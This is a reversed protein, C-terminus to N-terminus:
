RGISTAAISTAKIVAFCTVGQSLDLDQVARATVRALLQDGAADLSIAAGPGDGTRISKVTVPLINVSSLGTPRTRSLIVDQALVHLRVLTGVPAAVGPLELTGANTKLTSIGDDGHEMVTAQLVAGAQRVGVLPVITPDALVDFISGSAAIKGKSLIVLQDALRAIEDLAHSVYLIPLGAAGSKLRELYPLINDKRQGDLAALPEDMLLMKPRSLLARGLAVRQKEGGSLDTPRRKMLDTLGLLDAVEDLSPGTSGAPAHRLGFRLNQTVDMHPFLRADQFVYGMRRKHAPLNIRQAADFLPTDNLAIHGSDPASLGAVVNILTTKGAGSRGFVATVGNPATFGVDLTFTGLRKTINLDLSM